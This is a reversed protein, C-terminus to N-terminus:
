FTIWLLIIANISSTPKHIHTCTHAYKAALYTNYKAGKYIKIGKINYSIREVQHSKLIISILNITILKLVENIKM